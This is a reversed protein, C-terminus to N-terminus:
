LTDDPFDSSSGVSDGGLVYAFNVDERDLIMDDVNSKYQFYTTSKAQQGMHLINGHM